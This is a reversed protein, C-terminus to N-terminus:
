QTAATIEKYELPMIEGYTWTCGKGCIPCRPVWWVSVGCEPCVGTDEEPEDLGCLECVRPEWDPGIYFCGGGFGDDHCIIEPKGVAEWREINTM